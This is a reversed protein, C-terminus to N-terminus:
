YFYHAYIVYYTLIITYRLRLTLVLLLLLYNIYPRYILLLSSTLISKILFNAKTRM